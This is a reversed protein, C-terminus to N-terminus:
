ECTLSLIYPAAGAAGNLALHVAPHDPAGLTLLEAVHGVAGAGSMATAGRSRSGSRKEDPGPAVGRRPNARSPTGSNRRRNSDRIPRQRVGALLSCTPASCAHAM